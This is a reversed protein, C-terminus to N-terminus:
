IVYVYPAHVLNVELLNDNKKKKDLSSRDNQGWYQVYM